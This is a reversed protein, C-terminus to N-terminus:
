KYSKMVSLMLESVPKRAKSHPDMSSKSTGTSDQFEIFTHIADKDGKDVYSAKLGTQAVAGRGIQHSLRHVGGLLAREVQPGIGLRRESDWLCYGRM